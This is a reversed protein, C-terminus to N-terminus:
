EYHDEKKLTSPVICAARGEMRSGVKSRPRM